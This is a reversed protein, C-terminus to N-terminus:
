SVLFQFGSQHHYLDGCRLNEKRFFTSFLHSRPSLCSSQASHTQSQFSSMYRRSGDTVWGWIAKLCVALAIRALRPSNPPNQSIVNLNISHVM